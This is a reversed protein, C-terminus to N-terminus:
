KEAIAEVFYYRSLVVITGLLCLLLVGCLLVVRFFLSNHWRVRQQPRAPTASAPAANM